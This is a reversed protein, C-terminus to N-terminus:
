ESEIVTRYCLSILAVEDLAVLADKLEFDMRVLLRGYISVRAVM